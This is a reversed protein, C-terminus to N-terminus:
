PREVAVTLREALEPADRLLFFALFASILVQTVGQGVALGATILGSKAWVLLKGLLVVVHPPEAKTEEQAEGEVATEENALPPPEKVVLGDETEEVIKPRPPQAKVAKDLQEIWRKRDEAFGIWYKAMEDGVVPVEGVWTPPQDPASMFWDRTAMALDRGDKALSVGVFVVPGSFLVAVTLTVFCAALTRSGRFWRTFMRQLPYLSYTLIIAWMLATMFPWMVFVCGALLLLLAVGGLLPEAKRSKITTEEAM